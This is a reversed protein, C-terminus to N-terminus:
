TKSLARVRRAFCLTPRKRANFLTKDFGVNWSKFRQKAFVGDDTVTNLRAGTLRFRPRSTLGTIWIIWRAPRGLLPVVERPQLATSGDFCSRSMAASVAAASNAFAFPASLRRIM